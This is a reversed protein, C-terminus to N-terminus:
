AWKALRYLAPAFRKMAAAIVKRYMANFANTADVSTLHTYRQDLTGALARQITRVIPEVGGKSSVGLQYKELFDPKFAKRLLAKTILRCILGGCAIPRIGGDTKAVPTLRSTCLMSRGPATGASVSATLLTLFELFAPSRSALRLLPVTWGSIGPAVDTRFSELATQIDGRNPALGQTPGITAGVSPPTEGVPHKSELAALTEEAIDAVKSEGGLVRAASSLRGSQVMRSAM